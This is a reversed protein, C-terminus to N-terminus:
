VLSQSVAVRPLSLMTQMALQRKVTSSPKHNAQFQAELVEVQDKTLRPRTSTEGNMDEYDERYMATPYNFDAYEVAGPYGQPYDQFHQPQNTYASYMASQQAQQLYIAHAQEM